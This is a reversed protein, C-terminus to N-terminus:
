GALLRFGNHAPDTADVTGDRQEVPVGSKALRGAAQAVADDDGTVLEFRELGVSGEPPSPAGEGNWTNVGIHHHYGGASVFLAGPYSRVTVDLGLVDCYFRESAAIDAVNLHVHGIRTGAAVPKAAASPELEALISDLDLPLSAMRIEEGDYAWESPPRDRYIEIGIGDPDRLYLAESVLHDSAGTLREGAAALRALSAALDPRSPVLIAFHFLGTTGPPRPPAEPEGRLHLLAQGGAGMRAVGGSRGVEELGLAGEYFEISRELDRVVLHVAGIRTASPLAAESM